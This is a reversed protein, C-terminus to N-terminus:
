HLPAPLSANSQWAAWALATKAAPWKESAKNAVVTPARVNQHVPRRYRTVPAGVTSKHSYTRAQTQLSQPSYLYRAHFFGFRLLKPSTPLFLLARSQDLLGAWILQWSGGMRVFICAFPVARPSSRLGRTRVLIAHDLATLESVRTCDVLWSVFALRVALTGSLAQM